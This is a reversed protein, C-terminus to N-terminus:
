TKLRGKAIELRGKAIERWRQGSSVGYGPDPFVKHILSIQSQIKMAELSGFGKDVVVKVFIVEEAGQGTDFRDILAVGVLTGVSGTIQIKLRCLTLSFVSETNLKGSLVGQFFTFIIQTFIGDAIQHDLHTHEFPFIDQRLTGGPADGDVAPFHRVNETGGVFTVDAIKEAFVILDAFPIFNILDSIDLSKLDKLGAVGVNVADHSPGTMQRHHFLIGM